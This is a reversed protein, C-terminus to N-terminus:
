KWQRYQEADVVSGIDQIAKSEFVYKFSGEDRTNSNGSAKATKVKADIVADM